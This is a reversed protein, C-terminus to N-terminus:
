YGREWESGELQLNTETVGPFYAFIMITALVRCLAALMNDFRQEMILYGFKPSNQDNRDARGLRSLLSL